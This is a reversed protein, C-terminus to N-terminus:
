IREYSGARCCNFTFVIGDRVLSPLKCWFDHNPVMQRGTAGRLTKLAVVGSIFYLVVIAFSIIVLISGTSLGQEPQIICGYSSALTLRHTKSSPSLPYDLSFSIRNEKQCIIDIIWKTDNHHVEFTPCNGETSWKMQTEEVTGYLLTLTNNMCLSVKQGNQGCTKNNLLMQVNTCPHFLVTLNNKSDRFPESDALGTVNYYRGDPLVCICPGQQTCESSTPDCFFILFLSIVVITADYCRM